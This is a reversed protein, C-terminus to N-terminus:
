SENVCTDEEFFHRMALLTTGWGFHEMFRLAKNYIYFAANPKWPHLHIDVERLGEADLMRRIQNCDSLIARGTRKTGDPNVPATRCSWIIVEGQEALDALAEVAGPLWRGMDPWLGDEVCTGDWDVAYVPKDM